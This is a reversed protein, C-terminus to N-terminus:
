WSKEMQNFWRQSRKDTTQPITLEM